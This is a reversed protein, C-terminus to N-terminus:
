KALLIRLDRALTAPDFQDNLYVRERGQDDLLFLGISHMITEQGTQANLQSLVATFYAQWIPSLEASTGLLFHLRGTLHHAAAFTTASAPTDGAPDVSIAVWAVQDAQAGLRTAAAAMKEATLPCVDPCHTYLFTVVVPRGRLQDLAILAGTQDSLRFGPAPKAGMDTGQLTATNGSARSRVILLTAGVILTLALVMVRSLTRMTVFRRM